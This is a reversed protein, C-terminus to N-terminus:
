VKVGALNLVARVAAERATKDVEHPQLEHDGHFVVMRESAEEVDVFVEIPLSKKEPQEAKKVLRYAFVPDHPTHFDVTCARIPKSVYKNYFKVEIMDYMHLFPVEDTDADFKVWEGQEDESAEPVEILDFNDDSIVNVRGNICTKIPNMAGTIKNTIVVVCKGNEHIYVVKADYKGNRTIYKKNMSVTM